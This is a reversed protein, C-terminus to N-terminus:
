LENWPLGAKIRELPTQKSWVKTRGGTGFTYVSSLYQKPHPSSAIAEDTSLAHVTHEIENEGIQYYLLYNPIKPTDTSTDIPALQSPNPSLRIHLDGRNCYGHSKTEKQIWHIEFPDYGRKLSIKVVAAHTMNKTAYLWIDGDQPKDQEASWWQGNFADIIQRYQTELDEPNTDTPSVEPTDVSTDLNTDVPSVEPTDVSTDPNTDVPSVEPTDTSFVEISLKRNIRYVQFGLDKAYNQNARVENILEMHNTQIQYKAEDLDKIKRELEKLKALTDISTDANSVRRPSTDTSTDVVSVKDPSREPLFYSKLILELAESTNLNRETKFTNLQASLGEDIYAQLKFKNKVPM